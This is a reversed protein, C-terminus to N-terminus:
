GVLSIEADILAEIVVPHRDTLQFCQGATLVIDREAPTQTLWVTGQRVELQRAPHAKFITLVQQPKLCVRDMRQRLSPAPKLRLWFLLLTHFTQASM